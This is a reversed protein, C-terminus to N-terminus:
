GNNEGKLYKLFYNALEVTDSGTFGPREKTFQVAVGLADLRQYYGDETDIPEM